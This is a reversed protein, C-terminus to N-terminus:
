YWRRFPKGPLSREYVFLDESRNSDNPVLNDALSDFAVFRGDGSVAARASYGNSQAGQSSVSVRSTTRTVRDYIFVDREDNTDGPVLNTAEATYAVYRGDASISFESADSFPGGCTYFAVGCPPSRDDGRRGRDAQERGSSSVSVRETQGLLLDRVFVDAIGNTDNPVLNDAESLFVVFRGDFSLTVLDGSAYMSEGSADDGKPSVTVRHTKRTARDHVFVDVFGNHDDAVLNSAASRFAVYRGNGSISELTSGSEDLSSRAGNGEQGSSSVSVRETRGSIRDHVFVDSTGNSDNPVLNSAFSSFAVYRGDSSISMADSSDNAEEGASSISIRETKHTLRDHVYIDWQNAHDSAVLNDAISQVAVFRGDESIAGVYSDGNASEGTTSVSVRSTLHTVRDRVFVSNICPGFSENNTVNPECSSAESDGNLEGSPSDFAVYKGNGSVAVGHCCYVDYNLQHSHETGSSSVSARTVRGQPELSFVLKGGGGPATVRFYYHMKKRATFAVHANGEADDDCGVQRLRDLHTGTYVALATHHDSGFTNAALGITATPTYRYWVTGGSSVCERPERKERTAAATSTKATFPVSPVNLARSFRDNTLEHELIVRPTEGPYGRGRGTPYGNRQAGVSNEGLAEAVFAERLAAFGRFPVASYDLHPGAPLSPLTRVSQPRQGFPGFSLTGVAL